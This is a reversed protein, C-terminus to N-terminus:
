RCLSPRLISLVQRTPSTSLPYSTLSHLLAFVSMCMYIYASELLAQGHRGALRSTSSRPWHRGIPILLLLLLPLPAPLPTVMVVVVVVVVSAAAAAAQFYQFSQFGVAAVVATVVAAM